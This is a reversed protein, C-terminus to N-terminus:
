LRTTVRYAHRFVPFVNGPVAAASAKPASATCFTITSIGDQMTEIDGIPATLHPINVPPHTFYTSGNRPITTGPATSPLSASTSSSPPWSWAPSTSSATLSPTPPSPGYTNGGLYTTMGNGKGTGKPCERRFHDESGCTSCTM